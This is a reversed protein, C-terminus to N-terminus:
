FVDFLDINLEKEDLVRVIYLSTEKLLNVITLEEPPTGEPNFIIKLIPRLPKEPISGIVIGKRNDNIEVLSGIPYVSMVSLFLRLLVPDFKNVGGSLLNKMAHYFDVKDRYSRATIQAEYSDAIAIIRSFEGIENGKLGRPYGKGDFQEHHQLSVSAIDEDFGALEKIAKYGLLPHTKIQNREQESLGSQKLIIYAPIKMMGANTLLAGLALKKLEEIDYKLAMGLIVSYFAVNVPHTDVPDKEEGLGYLFLFVNYNERLITIIEIASKKLVESNISHGAKIAGHTESVAKVAKNHIDILRGRKKLLQHYDEIVQDGTHIMRDGPEVPAKVDILEGATEVFSIGWRMLKKIDDEKIPVKAGVLINTADTFVSKTFTMGPKLEEVPIKKIPSTAM